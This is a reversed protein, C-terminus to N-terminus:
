NFDLNFDNNFDSNETILSEWGHQQKIYPIVKTIEEIVKITKTKSVTIFYDIFDFGEETIPVDIYASGYYYVESNFIRNKFEKINDYYIENNMILPVYGITQSYNIGVSYEYSNNYDDYDYELVVICYEYDNFLTFGYWIYDEGLYQYNEPIKFDIDSIIDLKDFYPTYTEPDYLLEQNLERISGQKIITEYKDIKISQQHKVITGLPADPDLEEVLPIGCKDIIQQITATVPKGSGNSIPFKETGILQEVVPADKITTM